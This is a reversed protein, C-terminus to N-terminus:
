AIKYFSSHLNTWASFRDATPRALFHADECLRTGSRYAGRWALVFARRHSVAFASSQPLELRCSRRCMNLSHGIHKALPLFLTDASCRKKVMILSPSVVANTPRHPLGPLSIMKFAPFPTEPAAVSLTRGVPMPSPCNRRTRRTTLFRCAKSYQRARSMRKNLHCRTPQDRPHAPHNGSPHDHDDHPIRPLRKMWSTNGERAGRSRRCDPRQRDSTVSIFSSDGRAATAAPERRLVHSFPSGHSATPM